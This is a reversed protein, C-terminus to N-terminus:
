LYKALLDEYAPKPFAGALQDVKEGDKFMIVNPLGMIGFKTALDPSADIDVKIFKVSPTSSELEDLVPQLRKCPVCWPAEFKVFVLGTSIDSDFTSSDVINM